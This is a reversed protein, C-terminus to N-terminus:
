QDFDGRDKCQTFLDLAIKLHKTPGIPHNEKLANEALTLQHHLDGLLTTDGYQIFTNRAQLNSIQPKLYQIAKLIKDKNHLPTDICEEITHINKKIKSSLLSDDGLPLHSGGNNGGVPGIPM